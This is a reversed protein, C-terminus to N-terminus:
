DILQFILKKWSKNQADTANGNDSDKLVSLQERLM